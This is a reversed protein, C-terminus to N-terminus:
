YISDFLRGQRCFKSAVSELINRTLRLEHRELWGLEVRARKRIATRSMGPRGALDSVTWLARERRRARRTGEWQSRLEPNEDLWRALVFYSVGIAQQAAKLTTTVRMAEILRLWVTRDMGRRHAGFLVGQVPQAIAQAAVRFARTAAATDGQWLWNWLALWKMPHSASRHRLLSPIWTKNSLLTRGAPDHELWAAVGSKIFSERIAQEPLRDPNPAIGLEVLRSTAAQILGETSVRELSLIEQMLAASLRAPTKDLTTHASAATGAVQPLGWPVVRDVAVLRLDHTLCWWVAPLQHIVQWRAYGLTGLDSQVCLPCYRLPNPVLRCARLGLLMDPKADSDRTMRELISHRRFAPLFPLHAALITRQALIQSPHGLSGATAENLACMYTPIAHMTSARSTGFIELAWSATPTGYFLRTKCAWSFLTEGLEWGPIVKM